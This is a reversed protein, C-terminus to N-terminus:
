WTGETLLSATNRALDEALLPLIQREVGSQDPAMRMITRGTVEREFLVKGSRREVAKVRAILKVTYDRATIVDLPQFTLAERQYAIIVGELSVDGDGHTELRYTGDHQFSKRLAQAVAETLRPEQTENKFFGVRVSQAGATVGGVPGAHYGACGGTLLAAAVVATHWFARM